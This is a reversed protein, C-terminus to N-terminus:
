QANGKRRNACGGKRGASAALERNKSFSRKEAPIAAGGKQGAAAALQHDQSFSRDKPKVAAGGKSAIARQREAQMAAFGRRSKEQRKM